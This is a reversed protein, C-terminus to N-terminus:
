FILYAARDLFGKFEGIFIGSLILADRLPRFSGILINLVEQEIESHLGVLTLNLSACSEGYLINFCKQLNADCVSIFFFVFSFRLIM